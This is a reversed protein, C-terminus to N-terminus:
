TKKERPLYIKTTLNWTPQFNLFVKSLAESPSFDVGGIATQKVDQLIEWHSSDLNGCNEDQIISSKHKSYGCYIAAIFM